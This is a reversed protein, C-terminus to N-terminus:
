ALSSAADMRFSETRCIATVPFVNGALIRPLSQGYRETFQSPGYGLALQTLVDECSANVGNLGEVFDRPRQGRESFLSVPPELFDTRAADEALLLPSWHPRGRDRSVLAGHRPETVDYPILGQSVYFILNSPLQNSRHLSCFRWQGVLGDDGVKLHQFGNDRRCNVFLTLLQM